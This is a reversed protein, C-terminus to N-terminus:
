KLAVNICNKVYANYEATLKAVDQGDEVIFWEMQSIYDHAIKKGDSYSANLYIIPGNKINEIMKADADSLEYTEKVPSKFTTGFKGWAIAVRNDSGKGAALAYLWTCGKAYNSNDPGKPHPVVGLNKLSKGFASSSSVNEAINLNANYHYPPSSYFAIKGTFFADTTNTENLDIIPDKGTTLTRVYKYANIVKSDTLNAKPNNGPTIVWAGNAMVMSRGALNRTGLWYGNKKLTEGISKLADFDWKGSDYLKRPDTRVGADSLTKKNYWLLGPQLGYYGSTGVVGYLHGDWAFGNSLEESFGGAATNKKDILDATSVNGELPECLNAVVMGPFRHGELELIDYSKGSAKKAAVQQIYQDYDLMKVEIKCNYKTQFAAIQRKLLNTPTIACAMTFTKGGFNLGQEMKTSGKKFYKGGKPASTTPTTNNKSKSVTTESKISETTEVTTNSQTESNTTNVTVDTTSDSTASQEKPVKTCAAFSILLASIIGFLICKKIM